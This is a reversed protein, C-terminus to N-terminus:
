PHSNHYSKQRTMFLFGLDQQPIMERKSDDDDIEMDSDEDDNKDDDSSWSSSSKKIVITPNLEKARTSSLLRANFPLEVVWKISAVYVLNFKYVRIGKDIFPFLNRSYVTDRRILTICMLSNM